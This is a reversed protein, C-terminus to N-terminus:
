RSNQAMKEAADPCTNLNDAASGVLLVATSVAPLLLINTLSPLCAIIIKTSHNSEAWSHNAAALSSHPYCNIIMVHGPAMITQRVCYDEMGRRSGKFDCVDSKLPPPTSSILNKVAFLETGLKQKIPTNFILVSKFCLVPYYSCKGTRKVKLFEVNQGYLTDTHEM